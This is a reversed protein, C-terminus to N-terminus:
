MTATADDQEAKQLQPALSNHLAPQEGTHSARNQLWRVRLAGVQRSLSQLLEAQQSFQRPALTSPSLAIPM